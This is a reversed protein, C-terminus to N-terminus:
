HTLKKAHLIVPTIAKRSITLDQRTTETKGRGTRATDSSWRGRDLTSVRGSDRVDRHDPQDGASGRRTGRSNGARHSASAHMAHPSGRSSLRHHDCPTAQPEGRRGHGGGRGGRPTTRRAGGNEPRMKENRPPPPVARGRKNEPTRPWAM